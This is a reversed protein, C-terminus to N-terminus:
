NKYSVKLYDEKSPVFNVAVKAAQTGSKIATGATKAADSDSSFIYWSVGGVVVAAGIGAYLFTNSSSKPAEPPPPASETAFRRFANSRVAVRTRAAVPAPALVRRTSARLAAFSM